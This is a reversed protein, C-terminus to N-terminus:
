DNNGNSYYFSNSQGINKPTTIESESNVVSKSLNMKGVKSGMVASRIIPM